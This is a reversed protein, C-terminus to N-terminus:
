ARTAVVELYEAPIAIAGIQIMMTLYDAAWWREVSRREGFRLVTIGPIDLAAREGPDRSSAWTLGPSASDGPSTTARSSCSIPRCGASPTTCAEIGRLAVARIEDPTM